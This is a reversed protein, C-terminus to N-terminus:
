ARRWFSRRMPTRMGCPRVLGPESSTSIALQSMPPREWSPSCDCALTSGAQQAPSSSCVPRTGSAWRTRPWALQGGAPFDSRDLSDMPLAVTCMRAPRISGSSCTIGSRPSRKARPTPPTPERSSGLRPREGRLRFGTEWRTVVDDLVRALVPGRGVPLDALEHETTLMTLLVVMLPTERLGPDSSLQAKVWSVRDKVWSRRGATDLEREVAVARMIAEATDMPHEPPRVRLDPLGLTHADAYAVDRTTLLLEVAPDVETLKDGLSAVIAYRQSRTEDLADLFIAAAGDRLAEIAAVRLQSREDDPEDQLAAELLADDFNMAKRLRALRDLSVVLPMPWSPRVAYGAAAARLAVSKGSGPLGVLLARGRRRLAWLLDLAGSVDDPDAPRPASAPAVRIGADVEDLKVPPLATGLGRLDLAEGRRRVRDRYAEVKQRRDQRQASAYGESAAALTFGAASLAGMLDTLTAGYRRRALDRATERLTAWARAGEDRAVVSPELLAQGLRSALGDSEKLDALWVVACDLVTNQATEDLDGLLGTLRELAHKEDGSFAGAIARRRRRLAHRLARVPGSGRAAAAVLRDHDPNLPTESALKVWQAAVAKMSSEAARGFDLQTKAQVYASGGGTLKVVVDDVAADAELWMSVPTALPDPLELDAFRQGRLIHAAVYSALGARFSSGAEDASGGAPGPRVYRHREPRAM